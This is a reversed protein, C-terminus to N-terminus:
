QSSTSDGIKTIFVSDCKVIDIAEDLIRVSSLFKLTDLREEDKQFDILTQNRQRSGINSSIEGTWCPLFHYKKMIKKIIKNFIACEEISPLYVICKRSGTKLMGNIIFLGKKCLDNDLKNLEAPKDIAIEEDIILPLYINYDCIYKNKIADYMSYKYINESDFKENMISPPTATILLVKNFKKIIDNLEDNNILNHAEDVILISNKMDLKDDLLLSITDKASKFTTSIITKKNLIKKIDNIDLNGDSDSDALLSNYKPLHLKIEKLFQKAHMRLPSFIFINKIPKKELYKCVILTKGTGCPLVLSKIGTWKESLKKIAEKQYNRLTKELEKEEKRPYINDYFDTIKNAILRDNNNKIDGRVNFELKCSHYLYGKALKNKLFLRFFLIQWFTGLDHGTLKANKQWLKMQLGHYIKEDNITEVAIGDLGYEQISNVKNAKKYEKRKTRHENFDTIFGCEFLIDEPINNWHYTTQNYKKQHLNICYHEFELSHEKNNFEM